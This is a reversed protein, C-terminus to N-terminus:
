EDFNIYPIYEDEAFSKLNYLFLVDTINAQEILQPVLGKYYRMDLLTVTEYDRVIYPLFSNAYSDKILLLHRGNHNETQITVKSDNGGLFYLYKDKESLKQPSYISDTTERDKQVTMGGCFAPDPALITDANKGDFLGYRSYTTGFFDDCVPQIMAEQPSAARQGIAECFATYAYYAGLGTWHHDTRYYLYEDRHQDFLDSLPIFGDVEAAIQAFLAGCDVTEAFPPLKDAFVDAAVPAVITKMEIGCVTRLREEFAALAKLNEDFHLLSSDDFSDLLYGDKGSYVGNNETKLLMKECVTKVSVWFDRGVFHDALWSSFDEMFSGDLIAAASVTPFVALARNENDSFEKKPLALTLVSLLALFVAFVSIFIKRYM